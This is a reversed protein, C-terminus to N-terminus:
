SYIKTNFAADLNKQAEAIASDVDLIGFLASRISSGLIKEFRYENFAANPVEDHRRGDAMAADVGAIWPYLSLIDIDSLLKKNNIYGGLYSIMSATHDSYLWLFFERVADLKVTNKSIGISGGGLLPFGGPVQSFGIKNVFESNKYHMIASAHNCFVVTMATNGSAFENMAESWWNLTHKPICEASKIHEILTKRFLPDTVRIHGADDYFRGGYSRYRPLFECAATVSSGIVLSTGYDTPSKKNRSKTFFSAIEDYEAYTKPLTLQRKTTEFFSRRILSDEFLDKRYYLMQASIDFPLAVIKNDSYYYDRPIKTSFSESITKYPDSSLDIPLFIAGGIETLWAMDLRILDYAKSDRSELAAKYLEDYPMTIIKLAIGTKAAFSPALAKLAYATPSNLTLLNIQERKAIRRPTESPNLFGDAPLICEKEAESTKHLIRQAIRCGLYKYNLEYASTEFGHMMSKNTVTFIQLPSAPNYYAHATKVYEENEHGFVLVADFAADDSVIAFATNACMSEESYFVSCRCGANKLVSICGRVFDENCSYRAPGCFVAVKRRGNKVASEALETGAREFDFAYFFADPDSVRREVYFLMSDKYRAIRQLSASIVILASPNEACIADVLKTEKEGSDDTSYITLDYDSDNLVFAVGAYLDGYRKIQLKPVIIAVRNTKGQKLQKAQANPKFGLQRVANEVLNIKQVSVNGKKNLVNSVTGHSVGALNAIDKITAM